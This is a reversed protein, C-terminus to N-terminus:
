LKIFINKTNNNIMKILAQYIFFEQNIKDINKVFIKMTMGM